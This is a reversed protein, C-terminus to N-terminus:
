TSLNNIMKTTNFEIMSHHGTCVYMCIFYILFYLCLVYNSLAFCHLKPLIQDHLPLPPLQLMETPQSQPLPHSWVPAIPSPSVLLTHLHSATSTSNSLFPSFDPPPSEGTPNFFLLYTMTRFKQILSQHPM